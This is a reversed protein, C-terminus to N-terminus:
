DNRLQEGMMGPWNICSIIGLVHGTSDWKFNNDSSSPALSCPASFDTLIHFKTIKPTAYRLAGEDSKLSVKKILYGLIDVLAANVGTGTRTGTGNRDREM